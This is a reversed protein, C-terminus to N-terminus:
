KRLRILSTYDLEAFGQIEATKLLYYVTDLIPLQGPPLSEKLLRMDKGMHKISFQPSFDENRFKGEKLAAVGSFAGNKKFATFFIEDSIGANRATSLAECLAEVISAIQLNMVLKLTAAQTESGIHIINKGLRELYPRATTLINEAGGVYFVLDRASAAPLSGTFPSELYRAGRSTVLEKFTTSSAPDITSSQIVLHQETLSPAMENLVSQVAKPDAVVIHLIEAKRPLEALNRTFHPASPKATRNWSATLIGDEQLHTAWQGGIIGLGAIAAKM